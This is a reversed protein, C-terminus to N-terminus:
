RDKSRHRLAAAMGAVEDLLGDVEEAHRARDRRDAQIDLLACAAGLLAVGALGGSVLGPVQVPPMLSRAITRWGLWLAALGAIGVVVMTAWGPLPRNHSNPRDASHYPRNM